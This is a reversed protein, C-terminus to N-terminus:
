TAGFEVASAFYSSPRVLADATPLLLRFTPMAFFRVPDDSWAGRSALTNKFFSLVSYSACAFLLIFVIVRRVRIASVPVRKIQKKVARAPM